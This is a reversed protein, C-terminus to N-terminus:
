LHSPNAAWATRSNSVGLVLSDIIMPFFTIFFDGRIKSCPPVMLESLLKSNANNTSGGCAELFRKQTNLIHKLCQFVQLQGSKCDKVHLRAVLLVFADGDVTIDALGRFCCCKVRKM